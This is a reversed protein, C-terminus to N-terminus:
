VLTNGALCCHYIYIYIYVLYIGSYIQDYNMPLVSIRGLYTGDGQSVASLTYPPETTQPDTEHQPLMDGCADEPAGTPEGNIYVSLLSLILAAVFKMKDSFNASM